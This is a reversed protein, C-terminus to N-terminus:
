SRVMGTPFWVNLKFAEGGEHVKGGECNVVHEVHWPYALTKTQAQAETTQSIPKSAARAADTSQCVQQFAMTREDHAASRSM